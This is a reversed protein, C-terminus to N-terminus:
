TLVQFALDVVLAMFWTTALAAAIGACTMATSPTTQRASM